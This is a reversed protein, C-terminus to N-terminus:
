LFSKLAGERICLWLFNWFSKTRDREVKLEKHELKESSGDKSIFLNAIGSLFNNKETGDQKLIILKFDEYELRMNGSANYGNGRFDYQLDKIIGEVEVNMAPRLFSNMAKASIAGLEGSVTFKDPVESVDFELNMTLPAEEMFSTKAKIQTVPFDPSDLGINTINYLSVDLNDFKLMGPPRSENVKEEYVISSNKIKILELDVKVGMERLLQSYLPKVREDDPLLKNRYVQFQAKEITIEPSSILLTEKEYDWKFNESSINKVTLEYRDKEFPIRNDFENKSFLPLIRFGSATFNEKGLDLEKVLINHYDDIALKLSDSRFTFNEFDVPLNRRITEENLLVEELEMEKLSLFFKDPLSDNKTMRISGGEFRIKGIRIVKGFDKKEQEPKKPLSDNEYIIIEPEILRLREVTVEDKFFYDTYDFEEVNLKEAVISIKDSKFKPKIVSTNGTLVNVRIEEYEVKADQLQNELAKDIEGAM